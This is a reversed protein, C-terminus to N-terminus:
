IDKMFKDVAQQTAKLRAEDAAALNPYQATVNGAAFQALSDNVPIIEYLLRPSLKRNVWTATYGSDIIENRGDDHRRITVQAVVGQETYSKNNVTLTEVRQNSLFNGLSYYVLTKHGSADASGDANKAPVWAAEQLVHPHGGFIVDVKLNALEQAVQQQQANSKLEYENGWHMCVVLIEAGDKRAAEITTGLKALESSLRTYDLFNLLNKMHAPM